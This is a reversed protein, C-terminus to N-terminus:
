FEAHVMTIIQGKGDRRDTFGSLLRGSERSEKM